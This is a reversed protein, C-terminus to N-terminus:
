DDKNTRKEKSQENVGEEIWEELQERKFRWAGGVKFAPMKRDSLLKYVHRETVKLYRAVEEVTLIDHEDSM